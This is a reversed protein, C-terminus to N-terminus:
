NLTDLENLGMTRKSFPFSALARFEHSGFFCEDVRMQDKIVILKAM